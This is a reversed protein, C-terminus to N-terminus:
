KEKSMKVFKDLIFTIAKRTDAGSFQNLATKFIDEFDDKSITFLDGKDKMEGMIKARLELLGSMGSILKCTLESKAKEIIVPADKSTGISNVALLRENISALAIEIRDLTGLKITNLSMIKNVYEKKRIELYSQDIHFEMHNKILNIAVPEGNERLLERIKEAERCAFWKDEAMQRIPSNCISCDKEYFVGDNNLDVQSTLFKEISKDDSIFNKMETNTNPISVKFDSSNM